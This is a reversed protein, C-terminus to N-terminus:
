KFIYVVFWHCTIEGDFSDRASNWRRYVQSAHVTTVTLWTKRLLLDWAAQIIIWLGLLDVQCHSACLDRNDILRFKFKTSITRLMMSKTVVNIMRLKLIDSEYWIVFQRYRIYISCLKDDQRRCKKNNCLLISCLTNAGNISRWIPM